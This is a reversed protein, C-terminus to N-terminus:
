PAPARMANRLISPRRTYIIYDADPAEEDVVVRYVIRRPARPTCLSERLLQCARAYYRPEIWVLPEGHYLSLDDVLEGLLLLSRAPSVVRELPTLVEVLM